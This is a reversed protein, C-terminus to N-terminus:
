DISFEEDGGPYFYMGNTDADAAPLKEKLLEPLETKYVSKKLNICRQYTELLVKNEAIQQNLKEDTAKTKRKLLLEAQHTHFRVLEELVEVARQEDVIEVKPRTKKFKFVLGFLKLTREKHGELASKAYLECIPAYAAVLYSAFREFKRIQADYQGDLRDQLLAKEAKLGAAKSLAYLRRGAMWEISDLVTTETDKPADEVGVIEGTEPNVIALTDDETQYVAIQEEDIIGVDASQGEIM